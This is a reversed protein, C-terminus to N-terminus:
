RFGGLEVKGKSNTSYCSLYGQMDAILIELKGDHDLDKIFISAEAGNPIKFVRPNGGNEDRMYVFGSESVTLIQQKGSGLVDGIVASATFPGDDENKPDACFDHEEAFHYYSKEADTEPDTVSSMQWHKSSLDIAAPGLTLIGKSSIVPSMYHSYGFTNQFKVNGQLDLLKFEGYTDLVAIVKQGEFMGVFPSSNVGAGTEVIWLFEGNKGNIAVHYDGYHAMKFGALDDSNPTGRVTSILDMVGDGNVDVPCASTNGNHSSISDNKWLLSGDIGNLAYFGGQEISFFVDKQGDANFDALVPASEVDYSVPYKWNEKGSKLDYCYFTFNDSGAFLRNGDIAIGTVDNDGALPSCYRKTIKGTKGEVRIIGDLSDLRSNRDTGNSGIYISGDQFVMNTRYTTVGIKTKWQLPFTKTLAEQGFCVGMFFLSFFFVSKIM